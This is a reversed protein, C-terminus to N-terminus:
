ANSSASNCGEEGVKVDSIEFVAIYGTRQFGGEELAIDTTLIVRKKENIAEILRDWQSTRAAFNPDHYRGDKWWHQHVCPLLEEDVEAFWSGRQGIAKRKKM